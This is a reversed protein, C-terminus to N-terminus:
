RRPSSRPLEPVATSAREGLGALLRRFVRAIARSSPKESPRALAELELGRLTALVLRAAIKPEAAGLARAHTALMAELAAQFDRYIAELSPTRAAELALEYEAVLGVRDGVVDAIVIAALADAADDISISGAAELASEIMRFREIAGRTYHALAERLLEDRSAFYYTTARVSAGAEAAVSRHTVGHPGLRALVRLTADLVNRRTEEARQQQPARTM